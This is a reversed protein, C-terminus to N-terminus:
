LTQMREESKGFEDNVYGSIYFQMELWSNKQSAFGLLDCAGFYERHAVETSGIKRCWRSIRVRRRSLSQLTPLSTRLLFPPPSPLYASVKRLNSPSMEHSHERHRCPSVAYWTTDHDWRATWGCIVCWASSHFVICDHALFATSSCLLKWYTIHGESKLLVTELM